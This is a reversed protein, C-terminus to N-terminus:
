LLDRYTETTERVTEAWSYNNVIRTRGREGYERRRDPDRLLDRLATELEAVAGKPVTQGVGEVLPELQPLATTVVPTECSLSELVTRPLGEMDSPLAFVASSAYLDPLTENDVRGTLTVRDALGHEEVSAQLDNYLPGEGVLTLELDPYDSALAAFAELLRQPGKARKLRGVFLIRDERKVGAPPRFLDCDIGNHIVSVSTSIGRDRLRQRDSETYCLIRDASQFTFRAITSMFADQIIDPASQSFLGHNTLVMPTGSFRAIAAALNSSFYLHSHVHLVDYDSVLRTLSTAMGPTISNGLPRAVERYRRIEYGDRTERRPATRNGHDSTLVTVDHGMEAQMRSMEHAHIAAGGLVEPHMDTAVRLIRLSDTM